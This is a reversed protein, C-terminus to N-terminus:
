EAHALGARLSSPASREDTPACRSSGALSLAAARCNHAASRDHVSSPGCNLSRLSRTTAALALSCCGDRRLVRESARRPPLRSGRRGRASRTAGRSWGRSPQSTSAPAGCATCCRRAPSTPSPSAASAPGRARTTSCPRSRAWRPLPRACPRPARPPTARAGRRHGAEAALGAGPARGRAAAPAPDHRGRRAGLRRARPRRPRRPLPRRPRGPRRPLPPDRGSEALRLDGDVLAPIGGVPNVARHWAPREEGFPM